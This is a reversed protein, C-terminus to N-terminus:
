ATVGIPEPQFIAEITVTFTTGTDPLVAEAAAKVASATLDGTGQCRLFVVQTEGAEFQSGNATGLGGITFASDGAGSSGHTTTIYDIAASLEADDIGADASIKVILERGVGSQAIGHKLYNDAVYTSLLSPM